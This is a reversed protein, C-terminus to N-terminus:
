RKESSELGARRSRLRKRLLAWEPLSLARAALLHVSIGAAAACLLSLASGAPAGPSPAEPAVLRHAALAAGGALASAFLVRAGRRAVGVPSAPLELRRALGPLLLLLNLWSCVATALALGDADMKLGVVLGFNLATNLVLMGSSVRVPTKFDGLAYYTRSALGVAGAPVVAFALMRLTAGMREVGDWGYEGHHFLVACMPDALLLLGLSAPAALFLVGLQTEDHLRRLEARHGRHGLAKLAPFVASTAAIAILALPFQQVRNAYYHASPGGDRLLAEAMFGDVMVNIQYVAAGLALPLSTKLVDLARGGPRGEVPPPGVPRLFLGSAALAPVHVALHVVGAGLVGWALVRAMDMQRLVNADPDALREWGFRAGIAVLVGIWAANMAAPAIAPATFHGRVQLAGGALAAVCVLIVFPLLRVCLEKVAEPDAGLWADPVLLVLGIGAACVGVLIGFLLRVTRLFLLRGAEPGQDGDVETLTTQLSTSLAGEGLFRRFLNPVRWATVFADYIGSTDGFLAASLVERAFGLIRSLLTLGSILAARFVLRGRHRAVIEDGSGDRGAEVEGVRRLRAFRCLGEFLPVPGM